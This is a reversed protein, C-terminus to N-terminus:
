RTPNNAINRKQRAYSIEADADSMSKGAMKHGAPYKLAGNRAMGHAFHREEATLNVPQSQGSPRAQGGSASAPAVVAGNTRQMQPAQRQNAPRAAPQPKPQPAPVTTEESDDFRDPFEERMLKDIEQFYTEGGIENARDQRRMRMELINAQNAMYNAMEPDFDPNRNDNVCWLNNEVWQQMVPSITVPQDQQAGNAQPQQRQQPQAEAIPKKPQSSEWAEINGIESEARSLRGVAAAEKTADGANKADILERTALERESKWRAKHTDMAAANVNQREVDKQAMQRKLDENEAALRDRDTQIENRQYIVQRIRAPAAIRNKGRKEPQTGAEPAAATNEGAEAGEEEVTAESGDEPLTVNSPQLIPEGEDTETPKTIPSQQETAAKETAM